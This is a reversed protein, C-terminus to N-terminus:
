CTTCLDTACWNRHCSLETCGTVSALYCLAAPTRCVFPCAPEPTCTSIFMLNQSLELARVLCAHWLRSGPSAAIADKDGKIASVCSIYSTHRVTSCQLTVHLTDIETPKGGAQMINRRHQQCICSPIGFDTGSRFSLTYPNDDGGEVTHNYVVDLVVEIGAGHLTKAM